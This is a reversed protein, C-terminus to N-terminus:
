ITSASITSVKLKHNYQSSKVPLTSRPTIDNSCFRTSEGKKIISTLLSTGNTPLVRSLQAITRYFEVYTSIILDEFRNM